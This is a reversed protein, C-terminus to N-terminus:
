PRRGSPASFASRRRSPVGAADMSGGGSSGSVAKSILRAPREGRDALLRSWRLGVRLLHYVTLYVNAILVLTFLSVVYGRWDDVLMKFQLLGILAGAVYHSLCYACTPSYALKKRWWSRRHRAQYAALYDRMERFLEEQTVTWSICAVPLGLIAAFVIQSGYDM